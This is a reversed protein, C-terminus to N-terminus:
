RQNVKDQPLNEFPIDTIDYDRWNMYNYHWWEAAYSSFGYKAMTEKLLQRNRLINEPLDMYDHGAKETFDDFPTPMALEEGTALNILTLDVACGRNHISGRWPVAVFNTDPYVEYFKVTAAYPRYADFIKLGVGQEKLEAQITRLAEAAPKRLYARPAKYIKQGTFNNATAYRIDLVIGPIVQELDVLEADPNQRLGEQYESNGSIVKLGYQNQSAEPKCSSLTLLLCAAVFLQLGRYKINKM